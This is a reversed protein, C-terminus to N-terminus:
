GGVLEKLKFILEEWLEQLDEEDDNDSTDTVKLFTSGDLEAQLLTFELVNGEEDGHFEFRTSKNIKKTVTAVHPREDWTLVYNQDRDIVVNQAFWQQLGGPSSIFNYLLKPSAKFPFEEEYTHKSVMM